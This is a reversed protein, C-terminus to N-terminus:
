HEEGNLAQEEAARAEITALGKGAEMGALIGEVVLSEVFDRQSEVPKQWEPVDVEGDAELEAKPIEFLGPRRDTFYQGRGDMIAAAIEAALGAHELQSM